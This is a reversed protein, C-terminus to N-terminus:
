ISQLAYKLKENLHKNDHYVDYQYLSTANTDVKSKQLRKLMSLKYANLDSLHTNAMICIECGCMEKYKDSMKEINPPIL